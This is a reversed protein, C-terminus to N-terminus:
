EALNVLKTSILGKKIEKGNEDLEAPGSAWRDEWDSGFSEEYRSQSKIVM